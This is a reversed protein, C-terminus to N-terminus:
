GPGTGRVTARHARRRRPRLHRHHAQLGGRDPQPIGAGREPRRPQRSRGRRRLPLLGGRRVRRRDPGASMTAPPLSRAKSGSRTPTRPRTLKVQTGPLPAGICRADTYDFNVTTVAPATETTGWSGIVPISRGSAQAALARLRDRLGSPPAAAANFLLRLRAFFKRAFELDAELAPILQAYGAPVNFYVTPAIDSLNTITQAFLGPAPTGNRHLAYRRQQTSHGLQSQRRLYSEVAALRRDGAARHGLVAMGPADDASQGGADSSHEASREARREALRAAGSRSGTSIIAPVPGLADLAPRFREADESFVAGPHIM